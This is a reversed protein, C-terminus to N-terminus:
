GHGALLNAGAIWLGIYVTAWSEAAFAGTAARTYDFTVAGAVFMLHILCWAVVALWGLTQAAQALRLPTAGGLEYFSLMLPALAATMVVLVLDNITGWPQGVWFFLGITVLAVTGAAAVVYGAVSGVRM